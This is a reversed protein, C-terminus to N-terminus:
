VLKESGARDGHDARGASFPRDPVDRQAIKEGAAEGARDHGDVRAMSRDRINGGIGVDVRQGFGRVQGDDARRGFGHGADDIPGSPAAGLGGDDDGGAQGPGSEGVALVGLFRHEGGRPAVVHAQETGIAEAQHNRVDPKVGAEGMQGRQRSLDGEDRLRSRQSGGHEVPRARAADAKGGEDREAVRDVQAEAVDEIIEAAIRMGAGNKQVDLGNAVPPVEHRRGARRRAVLRHQHDLGASGGLALAGGPRM